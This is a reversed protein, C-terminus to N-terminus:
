TKDELEFGHELKALRVMCWYYRNVVCDCEIGGAMFGTNCKGKCEAECYEVLDYIDACEDSLNIKNDEIRTLNCPTILREEYVALAEFADRVCLLTNYPGELDQENNKIKVLYAMNNKPSRATLREFKSM